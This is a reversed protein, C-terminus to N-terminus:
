ENIDYLVKRKELIHTTYFSNAISALFARRSQTLVLLDLAFSRNMCVQQIQQNVNHIDVKDSVIVCLDVDSEETPTGNAYSGFLEISLPHVTNIIKETIVQIESQKLM